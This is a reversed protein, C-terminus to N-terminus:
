NNNLSRNLIEVVRRLERDNPSADIRRRVEYSDSLGTAIFRRVHPDVPLGAEQFSHDYLLPPIRRPTGPFQPFGTGRPGYLPYPRIDRHLARRQRPTLRRRRLPPNLQLQQENVHRRGEALQRPQLQAEPVIVLNNSELALIGELNNVSSPEIVTGEAAEEPMVLGQVLM